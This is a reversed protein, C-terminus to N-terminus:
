CMALTGTGHLSMNQCQDPTTKVQACGHNTTARGSLLSSGATLLTHKTARIVVSEAAQLPVRHVIKLPM